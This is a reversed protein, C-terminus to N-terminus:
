AAEPGADVGRDEAYFFRLLQATHVEPRQLIANHRACKQLIVIKEDRVHRIRFKQFEANSVAIMPDFAGRISLDDNHRSSPALGSVLVILDGGLQM